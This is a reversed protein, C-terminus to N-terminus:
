PAQSSLTTISCVDFDLLLLKIHRKLHKMKLIILVVNKILSTDDRKQGWEPSIYIQMM